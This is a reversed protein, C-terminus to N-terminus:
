VSVEPMCCEACKYLVIGFFTDNRRYLHTRPVPICSQQEGIISLMNGSWRKSQKNTQDENSICVVFKETFVAKQYYSFDFINLRIKISKM